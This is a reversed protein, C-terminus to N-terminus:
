SREGLWGKIVQAAQEVNEGALDAITESLDKDREAAEDRPKAELARAPRHGEGEAQQGNATGDLRGELEGVRHGLLGQPMERSPVYLPKAVTKTVPRLVFLFLVLAALSILGLRVMGMIWSQRELALFASDDWQSDGGPTLFASSVVTVEDGRDESFGIATKVLSEFSRIEEASWPEYTVTPESEEDEAPQVVTRQHIIVSATQRSLRGGPQVSSTRTEGMESQTQIEQRLTAGSEVLTSIAEEGLESTSGMVGSPMAGEGPTIALSNTTTSSLPSREARVATVEQETFDFSAAVTAYVNGAGVFPELVRVIAEARAQEYGRQLMEQYGSRASLPDESPQSLAVGTAADIVTVNEPRLETVSRSVFAVIGQVQRDSLRSGPVLHLLVSATPQVEERVFVTDAPLTIHVRASEVMSMQRISYALEGQIARILNQHQTFDTVGISQTDFIDYGVGGGRPLGEAMLDIRLEAVQSDPVSITTGGAGLRYPIGQARLRELVESADSEALDSFLVRYNATRAQAILLGILTLSGIVLALMTLRRAPSMGRWLNSLQAAIGQGEAM